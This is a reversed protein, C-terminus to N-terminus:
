QCFFDPHLGGKFQKWKVYLQVLSERNRDEIGAIEEISEFYAIDDERRACHLIETQMQYERARHEATNSRLHQELAEIQRAVEMVKHDEETYFGQIFEMIQKGRGQIAKEREDKAEPALQAVEEDTLQDYPGQLETPMTEYLRKVIDRQKRIVGPDIGNERCTRELVTPLLAESFYGGEAMLEKLKSSYARSSAGREKLGMKTFVLRPLGPIEPAYTGSAVTEYRRQVMDATLEM